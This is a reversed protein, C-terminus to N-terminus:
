FFNVLGFNASTLNVGSVGSINSYKSLDSRLFFNNNIKLEYGLSIINGEGSFVRPSSSSSNTLLNIMQIDSSKFFGVGFYLGKLRESEFLHAMVRIFKLSINQDLEAEYRANTMTMGNINTKCSIFKQFGMETSILSSWNNGVSIVYNKGNSKSSSETTGGFIETLPENNRSSNGNLVGVGYSGQVFWSHNFEQASAFTSSSVVLLILLKFKV